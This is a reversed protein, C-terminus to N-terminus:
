KSTKDIIFLTIKYFLTKQKTITPWKLNIELKM